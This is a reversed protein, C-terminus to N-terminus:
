MVNFSTPESDPCLTPNTIGLSPLTESSDSKWLLVEVGTFFSHMTTQTQLGSAQSHPSFLGQFSTPHSPLDSCHAELETLAEAGLCYPLTHDLFVGLM